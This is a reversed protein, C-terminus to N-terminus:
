VTTLLFEKSSVSTISRMRKKLGTTSGPKLSVLTTAGYHILIASSFKILELFSSTTELSFNNWNLELSEWNSYRHILQPKGSFCSWYSTYTYGYARPVSVSLSLSIKLVPKQSHPAQCTHIECPLGQPQLGRPLTPIAAWTELCDPPLIREEEPSRLTERSVKLQNSSAEWIITTM